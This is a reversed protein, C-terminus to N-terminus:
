RAGRWSRMTKMSHPLPRICCEACKVPSCNLVRLQHSHPSDSILQLERSITVAYDGIRELIINIRIVSSILRLHGASPLHVAIFQHCLSDIARMQRNIPGDGLIVSNALDENLTILAHISNQVACEVRTAMQHVESRINDLDKELRQEYHSM